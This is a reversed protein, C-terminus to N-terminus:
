NTWRGCDAAMKTRRVGHLQARRLRRDDDDAAAAAESPSSCWCGPEVSLRDALIPSVHTSRDSPRPYIHSSAGDQIALGVAAAALTYTRSPVFSEANTQQTCGMLQTWATDDAACVAVVSRQRGSLLRHAHIEYLRLRCTPDQRDADYASGLSYRTDTRECEFSVIDSM